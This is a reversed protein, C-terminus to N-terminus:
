LDAFRYGVGTETLLHRSQAPADGSAAGAALVIVSVTAIRGLHYM